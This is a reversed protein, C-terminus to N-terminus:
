NEKIMSLKLGNRSVSSILKGDFSQFCSKAKDLPRPDKWNVSDWNVRNTMIIYDFEKENKSLKVKSLKYKKLYARIKGEGVGCYNLKIVDNKPFKSKEFLEKMSTALYDNEFKTHNNSTKGNLYNLYVYQYPTLSFFKFLFVLGLISLLSLLIKNSVLHINSLIYYVGLSPVIIFYPIIFMFKRM